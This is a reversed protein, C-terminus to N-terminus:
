PLMGGMRWREYGSHRISTPSAMDTYHGGVKQLEVKPLVESAGWDSKVISGGWDKVVIGFRLPIANKRHRGM